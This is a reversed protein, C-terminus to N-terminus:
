KHAAATLEKNIGMGLARTVLERFESPLVRTDQNSEPQPTSAAVVTNEKHMNHWEIYPGRARLVTGFEHFNLPAKYPVMQVAVAGPPLYLANILGAGNIGILVTVRQMLDVQDRFSLDEYHILEGEVGLDTLVAMMDMENAFKRRNVRSIVGVFPKSPPAERIGLQARAYASFRRLLRRPADCAHADHPDNDCGGSLRRIGNEDIDLKEVGEWSGKPRSADFDGGSDLDVYPLGLAVSEMCLPGNRTMANLSSRHLPLVRGAAEEELEADFGLAGRRHEAAEVRRDRKEKRTGIGHLAPDGALMRMVQMWVARRNGFYESSWDIGPGPFLQAAPLLWAPKQPEPAVADDGDADDNTTPNDEPLQILGHRELVGFVRLVMDVHMHYYNEFFFWDIFAVVPQRLITGCEVGAQKWAEEVASDADDGDKAAARLKALAARQKSREWRAKGKGEGVLELGGFAARLRQTANISAPPAPPLMELDGRPWLVVRSLTCYDFWKCARAACVISRDDCTDQAAGSCVDNGCTNPPPQQQQTDGSSTVSIEAAAAAAAEVAQDQTAFVVLLGALLLVTTTSLQRSAM